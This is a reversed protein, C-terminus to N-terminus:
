EGVFGKLAKRQDDTGSGRQKLFDWNGQSNCTLCCRRHLDGIQWIIHPGGQVCLAAMSCIATYRRTVQLSLNIKSGFRGLYKLNYASVSKQPLQYLGVTLLSGEVAFDRDPYTVSYAPNGITHAELSCVNTASDEVSASHIEKDGDNLYKNRSVANILYIFVNPESTRKSSGITCQLANSSLEPAISSARRGFILGQVLCILTINWWKWSYM